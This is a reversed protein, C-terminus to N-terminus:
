EEDAPRVRPLCAPLEALHYALVAMTATLREFDHPDVKDLTDAATHHIDFYHRTDTLPAFGPVGLEQLPDIDAGLGQGPRSDLVPARIATLAESVPKLAAAAKGGLSTRFGMVRGAGSDSEIAACHTAIRERVSDRYAKNGRGGREEDAWAIFRVTRRAHVNLRALADIVGASAAVGTGDDSAGTGLDWSDLHGSVIVVEDPFERGPWDAIVNHVEVPALMRPTLLLHLRVPGASALRVILDIDESALAACPISAQGEKWVTVGTHPIRLDVGGVSRILVAAAGLAAAQSPGSFRFKGAESYAAFPLGNDALRQDFRADFVVIRGRVEQARANMEAFDHLVIVPLEIGGEPTAGSDGLATLHLRQTVGQPRGPYDVLEAEEAGRVWPPVMVPQLTVRAGLARLRAAVLEEAAAFQVSGAPRAGVRDSLDELLKWSWRGALASDRVQELSVGSPAQPKPEAAAARAGAGALLAGLLACAIPALSRSGSRLPFM